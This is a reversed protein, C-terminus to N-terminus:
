TGSTIKAEINSIIKEYIFIFQKTIFITYHFTKKEGQHVELIKQGQNYM